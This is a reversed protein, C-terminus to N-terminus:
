QPDKWSISLGDDNSYSYIIRHLESINRKIGDFAEQIIVEGNNTIVINANKTKGNVILNLRLPLIYTSLVPIKMNEFIDSINGITETSSIILDTDLKNFEDLWFDFTLKDNIFIDDGISSYFLIVKHRNVDWNNANVKEIKGNKLLISDNAGYPPVQLAGPQVYSNTKKNKGCSACAM